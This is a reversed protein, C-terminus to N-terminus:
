RYAWFRSSSGPFRSPAVRHGEIVRWTLDEIGMVLGERELTAGARPADVVIHLRRDFRHENSILPLVISTDQLHAAMIQNVGNGARGSRGGHTVGDRM